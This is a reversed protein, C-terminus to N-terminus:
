CVVLVRVQSVIVQFVDDLRAALDKLRGASGPSRVTLEAIERRLAEIVPGLTRCLDEGTEGQLCRALDEVQDLGGLVTAKEEELRVQPVELRRAALIPHM